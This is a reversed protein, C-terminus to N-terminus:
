DNSSRDKAMDFPWNGMLQGNKKRENELPDCRRRGDCTITLWIGFFEISCTILKVHSQFLFGNNSMKIPLQQSRETRTPRFIQDLFVCVCVRRFWFFAASIIIVEFVWSDDDGGDDDDNLYYEDLQRITSSDFPM